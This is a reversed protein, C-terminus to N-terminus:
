SELALIEQGRMGTGLMLWISMGMRDMPLDIMLRKVEDASFHDRERKPEYLINLVVIQAAFFSGYGGKQLYPLKIHRFYNGCFLTM